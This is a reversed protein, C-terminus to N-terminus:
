PNMWGEEDNDLINPKKEIGTRVILRCQHSPPLSPPADSVTCLYSYILADEWLVTSVQSPYITLQVNILDMKWSHDKPTTLTKGCGRFARKVGKFIRNVMGLSYTRRTNPFAAVGGSWARVLVHELLGTRFFTAREDARGSIEQGEGGRRKGSYKM